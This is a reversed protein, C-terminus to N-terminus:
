DATGVGPDSDFQGVYLLTADPEWVSVPKEIKRGWVLLVLNFSQPPCNAFARTAAQPYSKSFSFRRILAGFEHVGEGFFAREMFDHDYSRQGMDAAFRSIPEDDNEYQEEFYSDAAAESPFNGVWIDVREFERAM